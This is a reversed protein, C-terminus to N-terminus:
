PWPGISVALANVNFGMQLQALMLVILPLWSAQAPADVRTKSASSASM